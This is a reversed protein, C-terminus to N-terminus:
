QTRCARTSGRAARPRTSTPPPRRALLVRGHRYAAAQRSVDTFRSIWSARRLGFDTGYIGVLAARLEALDPEDDHDVDGETLVVRIPEGPERRGLAHTGLEDRRFGLEPEGDMEVEAIMWSTSAELGPFDIGAAKRVVSRGGDCGVLYRARLSGDGTLRVDVGDDDQTLGAVECGRRIPVGLDDLVWEALIREVHSQWLALVYPHRTPVDSMDLFAQAYGVGPHAQGERTFREAVGRQDLM